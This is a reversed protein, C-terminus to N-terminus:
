SPRRRPIFTKFSSQLIESSGSEQRRRVWILKSFYPPQASTTAFNTGPSFAMAGGSAPMMRMGHCRNKSKSPM